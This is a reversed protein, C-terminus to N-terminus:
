CDLLTIKERQTLILCHVPSHILVVNKPSKSLWKYITVSVHSLILLDEFQETDFNFTKQILLTLFKVIGKIDLEDFSTPTFNMFLVPNESTYNNLLHEKLKKTEQQATKKPDFNTRQIRDTLQVTCRKFM